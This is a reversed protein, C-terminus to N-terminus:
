KVGYDAYTKEQNITVYYFYYSTSDSSILIEVRYDDSEIDTYISLVGKKGEIEINIDLENSILNNESIYINSFSELISQIFEKM